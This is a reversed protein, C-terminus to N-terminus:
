AILPLPSAKPETADKESLAFERRVGKRESNTGFTNSRVESPPQTKTRVVFLTGSSPKSSNPLPMNGINAFTWPKAKGDVLVNVGGVTVLTPPTLISSTLKLSPIDGFDDNLGESRI